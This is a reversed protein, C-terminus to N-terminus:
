MSTWQPIFMRPCFEVPQSSQFRLTWWRWYPNVGSPLSGGYLCFCVLAVTAPSHAIRLEQSFFFCYWRENIFLFRSWGWFIHTDQRWVNESNNKCFCRWGAFKVRKHNLLFHFAQWFNLINTELFAMKWQVMITPFLTFCEKGVFFFPLQNLFRQDMNKKLNVGRANTRKSWNWSSHITCQSPGPLFM